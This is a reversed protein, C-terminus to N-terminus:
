PATSIYYSILNTTKIYLQSGGTVRILTDRNYMQGPKLTMPDATIAYTSGNCDKIYLTVDVNGTHQNSINISQLFTDYTNINFTKDASINGKFVHM